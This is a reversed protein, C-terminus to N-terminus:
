VEANDFLVYLGKTLGASFSTLAFRAATVACPDGPCDHLGYIGRVDKPLNATTQNSTNVGNVQCTWPISTCM